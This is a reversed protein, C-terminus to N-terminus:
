MTIVIKGQAHGDGLYRLADAIDDLAYRRDIYPTMKGTELLEGLVALDAKTLKAIFFGAKKGSPLAALTTLAVRGLPGVLRNRKPGGIIVLRAGPNLVRRYDSWSRNGAIDLVLDYRQGSRTFDERNYDIVRDAGLSRVIDVNRTSCVGTVEAELAKAIQVAFTGVGGSAGNVLVRHGRQVRGRDRLGQLATIAAVPVTAAQEFTVGAPKTAVARDQGVCVYEALAGRAGGFVEDGTRFLTVTKGVAEVTGAFDVGLRQNKPRRAGSGARVVYPTGTLDHWDLPNVSAAHVRVLVQDDAVVPQDVDRLRVVDPPGYEHHVAARVM